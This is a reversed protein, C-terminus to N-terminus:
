NHTQTETYTYIHVHSPLLDGPASTIPLLSGSLSCTPFPHNKALATCVIKVNYNKKKNMKIKFASINFKQM